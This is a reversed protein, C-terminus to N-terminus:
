IISELSIGNFNGSSMMLLNSNKWDLSKLYDELANSDTFVLLDERGFSSHVQKKTIPRLKKHTIAAPSFYVIATDAGDMSGKYQDLFEENLSSFTHLEICAVLKRDFFQKKM